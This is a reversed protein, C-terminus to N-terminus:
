ASAGHCMFATTTPVRCEVKLSTLFQLPKFGLLQTMLVGSVHAVVVTSSNIRSNLNLNTVFSLQSSDRLLFLLPQLHSDELELNYFPIHVM